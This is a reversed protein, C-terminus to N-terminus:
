HLIVIILNILNLAQENSSLLLLYKMCLDKSLFLKITCIICFYTCFPGVNVPVSFLLKLPSPFFYPNGKTAAVICKKKIDLDGFITSLTCITSCEGRVSGAITRRESIIIIQYFVM